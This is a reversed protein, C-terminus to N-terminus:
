TALTPVLYMHTICQFGADSHFSFVTRLLVSSEANGMSDAAIVLMGLSDQLCTARIRLNILTIAGEKSVANTEEKKSTQHYKTFCQSPIHWM